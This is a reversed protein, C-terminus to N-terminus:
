APVEAVGAEELLGHVERERRNLGEDIKQLCKSVQGDIWDPSAGAMQSNPPMTGVADWLMGAIIPQVDISANMGRLGMVGGAVAMADNHTEVRCEYEADLAAKQAENLTQMAARLEGMIAAVRDLAPRVAAVAAHAAERDTGINAHRARLADEHDRKDLAKLAGEISRREGNLKGLETTAHALREAATSDGEAVQLAIAGQDEILGRSTRIVEALRAQLGARIDESAPKDTKETM